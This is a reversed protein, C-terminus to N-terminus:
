SPACTIPTQSPRGSPVGTGPAKPPSRAAGTSNSANPRSFGASSVGGGGGGAGGALFGGGGYVAEMGSAPFLRIKVAFFFILILGLWFSPVSIGILVFLTIAKDPEAAGADITKRHPDLTKIVRYELLKASGVFSGLAM